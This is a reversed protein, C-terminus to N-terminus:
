RPPSAPPRVPDMLFPGSPLRPRLGIPAPIQLTGFSLPAASSLDTAALLPRTQFVWPWLVRELERGRRWVHDWASPAEINRIFQRRRKRVADLYVAGLRDRADGIGRHYARVALDLDGDAEDLLLAMWLAVFRTAVWPSFYAEDDFGADIEGTRHLARMRERAFDSAQALGLDRNGDRGVHVARHDFWSDSMVIASLTDAVLGPALGYAGGVDYYGAWYAVMQRYALTRIPQPVLDWHEVQMADWAAPNVLVGRFRDLMADLGERRLPEPLGNWDELHMRRWLGLSARVDDATTVWEVRTGGATITVALPRPDAFTQYLDISAVPPLPALFRGIVWADGRPIGVLLGVAALLITGLRPPHRRSPAAADAALAESAPRHPPVIFRETASM